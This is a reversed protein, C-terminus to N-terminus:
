ELLIKISKSYKGANLTCIYYGSELNEIHWGVEHTGAIFYETTLNKILKGNLDYINIRAISSEPLSFRFTTFNTVPNPYNELQIQNNTYIEPVSAALSDTYYKLGPLRNGDYSSNTEVECIDLTFTYANSINNLTKVLLTNEGKKLNITAEKEGFFDHNSEKSYVKEGNLYVYM